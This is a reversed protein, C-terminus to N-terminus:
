RGTPFSTGPCCTAPSTPRWCASGSARPRDGLQVAAAGEARRHFLGAAPAAAGRRDAPQRELFPAGRVLSGFLTETQLGVISDYARDPTPEYASMMLAGTLILLVALVASMGGLGFTHTYRLTAAPLRNPRMHLFFYKRVRAQEAM